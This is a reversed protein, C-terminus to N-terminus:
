PKSTFESPTQNFRNKFTKTFYSPSEFGVSYATESVSHGAKLYEVSRNLRIDRIFEVSSTDLLSRLKRNLTSKSIALQLALWEASLAENGLNENVCDVATQIFANNVKKFGSSLHGELSDNQLMSKLHEKLRKRIEFLNHIRLHLETPHFPKTIYDDAGTELGTVVAKGSARATLLVFSIHSTAPNTKVKECLQFGDMVPMMVDSIIVEPLNKEIFKWAESGNSAQAVNWQDGLEQALFERLEHNDDVVLITDKELVSKDQNSLVLAESQSTQQVKELPVQIMFITSGKDTTARVSGGMMNVLHRVLSLGIGTGSSTGVESVQHYRDFIRELQDSPIGIGSDIVRVETVSNELERLTVEIAGKSTFKLANGLLNTLIIEWASPDFLYTGGIKSDLTLLLGKEQALLQFNGVVEHVMQNFDGRGPNLVFEGSQIKNVSLLQNVLELLREAHRKNNGLLELLKDKTTEPKSLWKQLPSIILTLPTRFEHTINAFFNERSAQVEKLQLNLERTKRNVRLILMSVLGLLIILILAVLIIYKRQQLSRNQENNELTLFENQLEKEATEYKTRLEERVAIFDRNQRAKGFEKSKKLSSYAEDIEGLTEHGQAKLAYLNESAKPSNAKEAAEMAWEFYFSMSDSHGLQAHCLGMWSYSDTLHIYDQLVMQWFLSERLLLIAQGYAGQSIAKKAFERASILLDLSDSTHSPNAILGQILQEYEDRIETSQGLSDNFAIQLLLKNYKGTENVILFAESIAVLLQEYLHPYRKKDVALVHAQLVELGEDFHLRDFHLYATILSKRAEFYNPKSGNKPSIYELISKIKAPPMTTSYEAVWLGFERKLSDSESMAKSEFFARWSFEPFRRHFDDLAILPPSPENFYRKALAVIEQEQAKLLTGSFAFCILLYFSFKKFIM